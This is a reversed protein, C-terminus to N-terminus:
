ASPQGRHALRHMENLAMLAQEFVIDKPMNSLGYTQAWADIAQGIRRMLDRTMDDDPPRAAPQVATEGSGRPTQELIAHRGTPTPQQEACADFSAPTMQNAVGQEEETSPHSARQWFPKAV